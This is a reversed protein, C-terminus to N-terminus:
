PPVEFAQIRLVPGPDVIIMNKVIFSKRLFIKVTSQFYSHRDIEYSYFARNHVINM